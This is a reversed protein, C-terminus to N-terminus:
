DFKVFTIEFETFDFAFICGYFLGFIFYFILLPDTKEPGNERYKNSEDLCLQFYKRFM